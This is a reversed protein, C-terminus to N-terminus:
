QVELLGTSFARDNNLTTIVLTRLGAAATSSLQLDLEITNPFLGSVASSTVPIDGGGPGTLAYTFSPDLGNGHICLSTIVTGSSPRAVIVPAAGLTCNQNALPGVADVDIPSSEAATTPDTVIFDLGTALPSGATLSFTEQSVDFPVVVFPVPNSLAGPTGPNQVQLTATMISEVDAPVLAISCLSTTSCTTSQATGNLLIVSAGSGSGAVFNVGELSLPFGEVAGAMVSSPLVVEIAPGSTLAVMATASETADATSTATVAIANPSPATAPATYLGTASVFGCAAGSCGQGAVGSAVTWTVGTNTTGTVSATFQFTTAKTGSPALFAYLPSLGVRVAPPANITVEATGSKTADAASTATLAIPSMAPTTGPALYDISGTAAGGPPLCPNSGSVCIEGVTANGNVVGNVSWSVAEDTTGTVTAAFSVRQGAQVTAAAPIVTVMVNSSVTVTASASMGDATAHVALSNGPPIAEPATYTATSASNAVITGLTSNGGVVGNIDWAIPTGSGVCLMATFTQTGGLAVIAASPSLASSGVCTIAVAASASKTTDAASTATVTVTPPSPVLAPATYTASASGGSTGNAAITGLAQNGGTIADVSWIVALSPVGSGTVTATFGQAGGTAVSSTQPSISVAIDDHITVTASGSSGPSASSVATVTVRAPVPLMAPATYTGSTSITGTQTSGGAKGDVEWTVGTNSTGAVGAHFTQTAGLFVTASAPSVTVSVIAPATGSTTACGGLTAVVAAVLLMEIAASTRPFRFRLVRPGDRRVNPADGCVKGAVHASSTWKWVYSTVRM